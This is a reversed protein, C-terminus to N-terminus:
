TYRNREGETSEDRKALVPLRPQGREHDPTQSSNQSVMQPNFVLVQAQKQGSVLSFRPMFTRLFIKDFNAATYLPSTKRPPTPGLQCKIQPVPM